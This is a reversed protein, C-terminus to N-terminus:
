PPPSMQQGCIPMALSDLEHPAACQFKKQRNCNWLGDWFGQWFEREGTQNRWAKYRICRRISGLLESFGLHILRLLNSHKKVFMVGNRGIFYMSPMRENYNSASSLSGSHYVVATGVYVVRWGAKRARYCWDVDEHYGFLETDLLGVQILAARRWMYGCGVVIGVDRVQRYFANDHANVGFQKTLTPGYTVESWASWIRDPRDMHMNKAGVVAIQPDSEAVRVLEDVLNPHVLTDNNLLLVYQAGQALAYKIGINNGGTYGFNRRNAIVPLKPFARRLRDVTGDESANDVVLVHTNPYRIANLGIVCKMVAEVRNWTLVVIWVAPGTKSGHEFTNM